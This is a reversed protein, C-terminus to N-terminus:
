PTNTVNKFCAKYFLDKNFNANDDNFRISLNNTLKELLRLNIAGTEKEHLALKNIEEAILQYYKRSLAM